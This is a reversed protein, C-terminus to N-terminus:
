STFLKHFLTREQSEDSVPNETTRPEHCADNWLGPDVFLCAPMVQNEEALQILQEIEGPSLEHLRCLQQFLKAPNAYPAKWWRLFRSTAFAMLALLVVIGTIIGTTAWGQADRNAVANGVESLRSADIAFSMTVLHPFIPM